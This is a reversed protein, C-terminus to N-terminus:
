NAQLLSHCPASHVPLYIAIADLAAMAFRSGANLVCSNGFGGRVGVSGHVLECPLGAVGKRGVVSLSTWAADAVDGGLAPLLAPDGWSPPYGLQESYSKLLHSFLPSAASYRWLGYRLARLAQLLRPDVNALTAIRPFTPSLRIPNDYHSSVM